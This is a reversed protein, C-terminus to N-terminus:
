SNEITLSQKKLFEKKIDHKKLYEKEFEGVIEVHIDNLSKDNLSELLYTETMQEDCNVISDITNKIKNRNKSIKKEKLKNIKFLKPEKFFLYIYLALSSGMLLYTYVFHNYYLSFGYFVTFALTIFFPFITAMEDDVDLFFSSIKVHIYTLIGVSMGLFFPFFLSYVRIFSSPENAINFAHYCFLNLFLFLSFLGGFLIPKRYNKLNPIYSKVLNKNSDKLDRILKIKDIVPTNKM